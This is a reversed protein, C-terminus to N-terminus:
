SRSPQNIKLSKHEADSFSIDIGLAQIKAVVEDDLGNYVNDAVLNLDDAVISGANFFDESTKLRMNRASVLSGLVILNKARVDIDFNSSFEGLLVCNKTTADVAFKSFKQKGSIWETNTRADYFFSVGEQESAVVITSILLMSFFLKKSVLNM